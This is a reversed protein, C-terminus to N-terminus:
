TLLFLLLLLLLLSDIRKKARGLQQRRKYLIGGENLPHPEGLGMGPFSLFPFFVGCAFLSWISLSFFFFFFEGNIDGRRRGFVRLVQGLRLYRFGGM